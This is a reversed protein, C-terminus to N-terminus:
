RQFLSVAFWHNVDTWVQVCKLGKQQLQHHLASLDFKRSIESRITEGPQLDITLNLRSLQVTQQQLSRLHMEIQRLAENYFAVHEFQMLDFNGEFQHNLHRLINLNFEATIGQSDNYAAELPATPKHLDVGLLFYDGSRLAATVQDFFQDCEAPNLNGLTSGLFSILRQSSYAISSLHQLGREYTGVMGHVKLNPYDLLLQQASSELIGASVDIPCYYLPQYLPQDPQQYATLLSRTKTSSGSGLEVLECMGTLRAIEGAYNRLITAETRTLYYEPLDCIQEFLQSGRDDYFYKAPLTKQTQSLGAVVDAGLRDNCETREPETLYEVLLRDAWNPAIQASVKASNFILM